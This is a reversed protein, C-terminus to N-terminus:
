NHTMERLIEVVRSGAGGDLLQPNRAFYARQRSRLQEPNDMLERFRAEVEEASYAGAAIGQEDFPLPDPEGTFNITLAPVGLIAAELATNSFGTVLLASSLLLRHLDMDATVVPEINGWDMKNLLSEYRGAHEAPHIKVVLRLGAHSAMADRLALLMQRSKELPIPLTAFVVIREHTGFGLSAHLPEKSTNNTPNHFKDWRPIGTVVVRAPDVNGRKILIQRNFEDAVAAKDAHMPGYRLHDSFLAAQVTLSPIGYRKALALLVRSPLYRDPVVIVAAPKARICVHNLAEIWAAAQPFLHTLALRLTHRVGQWLPIGDYVLLHRLRNDKEIESWARMLARDLKSIRTWGLLPVQKIWLHFPISSQVLEEKCPIDENGLAIVGRDARLRKAVPLVTDSYRLRRETFLCVYPRSNSKDMGTSLKGCKLTQKFHNIHALLLNSCGPTAWGAFKLKFRAKLDPKGYTPLFSIREVRGKFEAFDAIVRFVDSLTGNNELIHVHTWQGSSLVTRVAHLCKLFDFIMGFAVHFRALERISLGDYKFLGDHESIPASFFTDDYLRFATTILDGDLSSSPPVYDAVCAFEVCSDEFMETTKLYFESLVLTDCDSGARQVFDLWDREEVGKEVLLLRKAV